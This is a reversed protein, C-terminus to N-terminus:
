LRRILGFDDLQSAMNLLSLFKGKDNIFTKDVHTKGAFIITNTLFSKILSFAYDCDHNGNNM